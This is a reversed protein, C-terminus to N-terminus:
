LTTFLLLLFILNSWFRLWAGKLHTGLSKERCKKLIIKPPHPTTQKKTKKKNFCHNERPFVLIAHQTVIFGWLFVHRLKYKKRVLYDGYEGGGGWGRTKVM